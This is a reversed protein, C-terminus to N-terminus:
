HQMMQRIEELTTDLTEASQAGQSNEAEEPVFEVSVKLRIRGKQWLMGPKLLKCAVGQTFWWEYHENKDKPDYPIVRIDQNFLENNFSYGWTSSSEATLMKARLFKGVTTLCDKLDPRKEYSQEFLIVSDEPTTDLPEGSKVDNQNKFNEM